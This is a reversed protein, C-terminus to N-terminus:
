KEHGRKLKRCQGRSASIDTLWQQVEVVDFNIDKAARFLAMNNKIMTQTESLSLDIAQQKETVKSLTITGMVLVIFAICGGFVVIKLSLKLNKLFTM